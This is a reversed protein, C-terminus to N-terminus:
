RRYPAAAAHETPKASTLSARAQELDVPSKWSHTPTAARLLTVVVRADAVAGSVTIHQVRSASAALPRRDPKFARTRIGGDAAFIFVEVDNLTLPERLQNRVTAYVVLPAGNSTRVVYADAVAAPADERNIIIPEAAALQAPSVRPARAANAAVAADSDADFGTNAWMDAATAATTVGLRVQDGEQIAVARLRLRVVRKGHGDVPLAEPPAEDVQVGQRTGAQDYVLLTTQLRLLPDDSPNTVECEVISEGIEVFMRASELRAPVSQSNVVTIKPLIATRDAPRAQEQADNAISFFLFTGMLLLRIRM